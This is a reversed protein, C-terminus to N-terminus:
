LEGPDFTGLEFSAGCSSLMMKTVAGCDVTEAHDVMQYFVSRKVKARLGQGLEVYPVSQGQPGHIKSELLLPHKESLVIQHDVNSHVVVVPQQRDNLYHEWDVIIFPVDEVRLLAKEVPTVLFYQDGEKRIISAFLKVSARREMPRGQYYWNGDGDISIDVNVEHEPHWKEVPPRKNKQKEVAELVKSFEEPTRKSFM